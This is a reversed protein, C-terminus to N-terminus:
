RKASTKGNKLEQGRNQTGPGWTEGNATEKEGNVTVTERSIKQEATEYEPNGRSVNGSELFYQEAIEMEPNGRLPGRKGSPEPKRNRTRPKRTEGDGTVRERRDSTEQEGTVNAYTIREHQRTGGELVRELM